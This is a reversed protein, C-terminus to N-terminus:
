EGDVKVIGDETVLWSMPIDYRGHPITNLLLDRYVVGVSVGGFDKLFRDFYGGGYGLRGGSRDFALGPTLVLQIEKPSVQPLHAAPEAMGFPHIILNDPVYRHFVMRGGEGPIIRPLLWRKEPFASLLSRLNIETHIPMYTLIREATRFIEWEALHTCVAQSSQQRAEEGLGKRISKCRQRLQSKQDHISPLM